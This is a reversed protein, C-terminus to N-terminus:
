TCLLMTYFNVTFCAKFDCYKCCITIVKSFYVTCVVTYHLSGYVIRDMDIFYVTDCCCIFFGSFEWLEMIEVKLGVKGKLFLM